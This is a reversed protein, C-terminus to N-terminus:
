AGVRVLQLGTTYSSSVTHRAEEVSYRGDYVGFDDLRIVIGSALRVDGVVNISAPELQRNAAQLRAQAIRLAEARSGVHEKIQLTQGSTVTADTATATILGVDPHRYSLTCARYADVSRVEFRPGPLVRGGTRSLTLVPAHQDNAGLPYVVLRNSDVKLAYGVRACAKNLLALDSERKQEIKSIPPTDGGVFLITMGHEAAIGAVLARLTINEWRRTKQERRMSTTISAALAKITIVDPSFGYGYSDVTFTGCPLRRTVTGEQWVIAATISDGRRPSWTSRWRGDPDALSVQLDDIQGAGFDSYECSLLVPAIDRSIDRGNYSIEVTTRAAAISEM